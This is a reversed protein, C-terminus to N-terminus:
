QRMIVIVIGIGIAIGMGIGIVLVIVIVIAVVVIIIITIILTQIAIKNGTSNGKNNDDCNNQFRALITMNKIATITIIVVVTIKM